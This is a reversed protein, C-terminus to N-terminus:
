ERLGAAELANARDSFEDVRLIRGNRLTYVEYLRQEVRVGSGRGRGQFCAIVLVHDGSGIVEEVTTEPEEEWAEMWRAYNARVANPGYLAGEELTVLVVYPDTLAIVRDFDGRSYADWLERVVEVNEQSM